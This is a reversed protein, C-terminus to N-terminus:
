GHGRERGTKALARALAREAEQREDATIRRLDSHSLVGSLLEIAAEHEGMEVRVLGENRQSVLLSEHAPGLTERLMASAAAFHEVAQRPRGLARLALGVDNHLDAVAAHSPGHVQRSMVLARHFLELGRAPEGDVMALAGMDSIAQALLPHDDAFRATAIAYGRLAYARQLAVDNERQAIVTLNHLVTLLDPHDPGLVEEWLALTEEFAGRAAATGDAMLVASALNNMSTAVMPHAPGLAARRLELARQHYARADEFEGTFMMLNGLNNLTHALATPNHRAGRERRQLAAEHHTRASAFDGVSSEITGRHSALVARPEGDQGIRDLAAEAHRAWVRGADPDALKYGVTFVLHTAASAAEGDWGHAVATFYTRSLQDRGAEADGGLVLERGLRARALVALPELGAAEADRVIGEHDRAAEGYRGALELAAADAMRLRLRGAIDATVPDDPDWAQLGAHLPVDCGEPAPLGEAAEVARGVMAADPRALLAVLSGWGERQRQLCRRRAAAHADDPAECASSWAARWREAYADLAADTREAAGRALRSGTASFAAHLDVNRDRALSRAEASCADGPAEAGSASMGVAAVGLAVFALAGPLARRVISRPPEIASLLARMHPFRDAPDPALGRRLAEATRRPVSARALRSAPDLGPLEGTLAEFLSVCWAYQDSRPGVAGGSWQEPAMYAPTGAPGTHADRARAEGQTSGDTTPLASRALGFDAVRVRGDGGVLMNAPKVDRHVLGADHAAALGHGAAAFARVIRDRAPRVREVWADLAVGDIWEMVVFGGIVPDHAVDYIQVVNPHRLRALAEAEGRLRDLDSPAAAHARLVKIAVRRRLVPDHGRYVTGCGGAGIRAEVRYRGISPQVPPAAFMRAEIRAVLLQADLPAVGFPDVGDLLATVSSASVTAPV